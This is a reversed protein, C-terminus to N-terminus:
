ATLTSIKGSTLREACLRERYRSRWQQSARNEHYGVPKLLPKKKLSLILSMGCIFISCRLPPNPIHNLEEGRRGAKRYSTLPSLPSLGAVAGQRTRAWGSRGAVRAIGAAGWGRRTRARLHFCLDTGVREDSRGVLPCVRSTLPLLRPYFHLAIGTTVQSSFRDTPGPEASESSRRHVAIATTDRNAAERM